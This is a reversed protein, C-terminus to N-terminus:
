RLSAKGARSVFGEVRPGTIAVDCSQVPPGVIVILVLLYFISISISFM